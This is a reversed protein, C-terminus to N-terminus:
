KKDEIELELASVLFSLNLIKPYLLIAFLISAIATLFFTLALGVSGALYIEANLFPLDILSGITGWIVVWISVYFVGFLQKKSM